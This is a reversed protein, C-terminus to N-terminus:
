LCSWCLNTEMDRRSPIQKVDGFCIDRSSVSINPQHQIPVNVLGQHTGEPWCVFCFCISFWHFIVMNWYKRRPLDPWTNGIKSKRRTLWCFWHFIVMNWPWTFDGHKLIKRATRSAKRPIDRPVHARPARAPQDDLYRGVRTRSTCATKNVQEGRALATIKLPLHHSYEPVNHITLPCIPTEMHNMITKMITFVHNKNHPIIITFIHNIITSLISYEPINHFIM